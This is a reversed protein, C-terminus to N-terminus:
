RDGWQSSISRQGAWEDSRPKSKLDNEFEYVIPTHLTVYTKLAQHILCGDSYLACREFCGQYNFPCFASL